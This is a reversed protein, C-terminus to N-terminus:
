ALRIVCMQASTNTLTRNTSVTCVSAPDLIAQFSVVDNANLSTIVSAIVQGVDASNNLFANSASQSNIVSGNNVIQALINGAGLGTSTAQLMFTIYYVGSNTPILTNVNQTFGKLMNPTTLIIQTATGTSLSQIQVSSTMVYGASSPPLSWSANGIGNTSTLVAGTSASSQPIVLAGPTTGGQYIWEAQNYWDGIQCGNTGDWKLNIGGTSGANNCKLDVQVSTGTSIVNMPLISNSYLEVTNGTMNGSVVLNSIQANAQYLNTGTHNVTLLDPIFSSAINGEGNITMSQGTINGSVVLNTLNTNLGTANTWTINQITLNTDAPGTIYSDWSLDGQANQSVLVAGTFANGIVIRGTQITARNFVVNQASWDHYLNNLNNPDEIFRNAM